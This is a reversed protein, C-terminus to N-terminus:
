KNISGKQLSSVSAGLTLYVQGVGWLLKHCLRFEFGPLISEADSNKGVVTSGQAVHPDPAGGGGAIGSIQM